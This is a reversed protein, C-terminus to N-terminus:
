RNNNNIICLMSFTLDTKRPNYLTLLSDLESKIKEKFFGCNKIPTNKVKTYKIQTNSIKSSKLQDKSSNRSKNLTMKDEVDLKPHSTQRSKKSNMIFSRQVVNQRNKRILLEKEKVFSKNRKLKTSKSEISEELNIKPVKTLEQKVEVQNKRESVKEIGEINYKSETEKNKDKLTLNMYHIITSKSKVQLHYNKLQDNITITSRNLLCKKGKPISPHAVPTKPTCKPIAIEDEPIM